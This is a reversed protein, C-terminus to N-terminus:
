NYVVFKYLWRLVVAGWIIAIALDLARQLFTMIWDLRWIGFWAYLDRVAWEQPGPMTPHLYESTVAYIFFIAPVAIAVTVRGWHYDCQTWIYCYSGKLYIGVILSMASIRALDSLFYEPSHDIFKFVIYYLVLLPVNVGILWNAIKRLNDKHQKMDEM